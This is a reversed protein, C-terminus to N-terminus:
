RVLEIVFELGLPTKKLLRVQGRAGLYVGSGGTIPQPIGDGGSFSDFRTGVLQGDHFTLVGSCVAGARKGVATVGCDDDLRGVVRGKLDLIDSTIVQRDLPTFGHKGLDVTPSALEREIFTLRKVPPQTTSAAHLTIAGASAAAVGAVITTTLLKTAPFHM